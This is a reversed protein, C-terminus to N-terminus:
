LDALFYDLAKHMDTRNFKGNKELAVAIKALLHGQQGLNHLMSKLKDKPIQMSKSPPTGFNALADGVISECDVNRLLIDEICGEWVWLHSKKLLSQYKGKSRSKLSSKLENRESISLIGLKDVLGQVNSNTYINPVPRGEEIEKKMRQYTAAANKGRKTTTDVMGYLTDIAEKAEKKLGEAIDDRTIPVEDSLVADWDFVAIWDVGLSSMLEALRAVQSKGGCPILLIDLQDASRNKRQRILSGIIATDSPGELLIVRRSLLPETVRIGFSQFIDRLERESYIELSMKGKATRRDNDQKLCFIDSLGVANLLIPSHTTLIVQSEDAMEALDAAIARITCPHLHNDPEEFLYLTEGPQLEGLQRHLHLILASQHGTGLDHLPVKRGEIQITIDVEEYLNDLDIRNTDIGVDEAGFLQKATAIQDSLVSRARTDLVSKASEKVKKLTVDGRAKKLTESFIERFPQIGDTLLDRIPPIYVTNFEKLLAGFGTEDLTEQGLRRTITGSRMARFSYLVTNSGRTRSLKKIGPTAQIFELDIWISLRPSGQQDRLHTPLNQYLDERSINKLFPFQIAKLFNSKGCSNPGCIVNISGLDISLDEISRFNRIRISKIRM